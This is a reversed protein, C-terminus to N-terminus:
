HNGGGHRHEETPGEFSPTHEAKDRAKDLENRTPLQM